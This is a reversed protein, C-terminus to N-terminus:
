WRLRLRSRALPRLHLKSNRLIPLLLPQHLLQRLPRLLLQPAPDKEKGKGKDVQPKSRKSASGSTPTAPRKRRTVTSWQPQAPPLPPFSVHPLSSPGPRMSMAPNPFPGAGPGHSTGSPETASQAAKAQGQSALAQLSASMAAQEASLWALESQVGSLDASRQQRFPASRELVKAGIFSLLTGSPRGKRAADGWALMDQELQSFASAVCGVMGTLVGFTHALDEAVVTLPPHRM